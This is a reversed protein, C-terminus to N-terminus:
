RVRIVRFLASAGWGALVALTLALLGYSVPSQRSLAFLWRELGVKRVDIVTDFRSVVHGERLLFVRTYYSGETLNSPLSVNTRFLTQQDLEVTNELVQYVGEKERIRIVAQTFSAPNQTVSAAGVTRIARPISISHRLDETQRLIDNLPGSTAVAYFSPAARLNVTEANVWIGFRRDKKHITVPTSPGALTVIVEIPTETIPSERKIAGFILIESGDFNATIRVRNQSLGLVVEEQAAVTTALNAWTLALLAFLVRM